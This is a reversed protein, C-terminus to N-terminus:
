DPISIPTLFFLPLMSFPNYSIGMEESYRKYDLLIGRGAIGHEAWHHISCKENAAPGNIDAGKTNNYFTATPIHSM